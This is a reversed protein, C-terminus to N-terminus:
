SIGLLQVNPDNRTWPLWWALVGREDDTFEVTRTSSERHVLVARPTYVNTYGRARLKLCLDVDNYNVPLAETLGGVEAYRERRILLCAGTVGLVDQDLAFEARSGPVDPGHFQTHGVDGQANSHVGGHQVTGDPFLLKAGVAGVHGASDDSAVALMLRLWTPTVVLTDDNLLLVYTGRAVAVGFNCSRSFNFPGHAEVATLPAPAGARAVVEEVTELVGPDTSESTVLVIEYPPADTRDVISAVADAVLLVDRGDVTRRGGGTPIVISVLPAQADAADDDPCAPTVRM